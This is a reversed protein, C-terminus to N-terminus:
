NDCNTKAIVWDFYSKHKILIFILSFSIGVVMYLVWFVLQWIFPFIMCLCFPIMVIITIGITRLPRIFYLKIANSFCSSLPDDFFVCQTMALCCIPIVALSQVIAVFSGVGYLISIGIISYLSPTIVAISFSLWMIFAFLMYRLANKKIGQGFGKITASTGDFLFNKNVLSIGSLGVAYIEVCPLLGLCILVFGGGVANMADNLLASYCQCIVIWAILPLTFPVLLANGYLVTSWNQEIIKFWRDDFKKGNQKSM